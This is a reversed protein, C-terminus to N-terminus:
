LVQHPEVPSMGGVTYCCHWLAVPAMAMVMGSCVCVLGSYRVVTENDFLHSCAAIMVGLCAFAFGFIALICVVISTNRM